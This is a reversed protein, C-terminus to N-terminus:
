PRTPRSALKQRHFSAEKEGKPGLSEYFRLLQEHAPGYNEDLRLATKLWYVGRDKIGLRLCVEGLETCLAPNSPLADKAENTLAVLRKQDKEIRDFQDQYKGASVEDGQRQYCLALHYCASSEAPNAALASKLLSIAEDWHEEGEAIRGRVYTVDPHDWQDRPLQELCARAEQWKGDDVLCSALGVRATFSSPDQQLVLEYEKAAEATRYYQKLTQALLVRATLREPDLELARRLDAIAASGNMRLVYYNGRLAIAEVNDPELQLWRNLCQWALDFRYIFLYAHSLSELVLATLPGEEFLYSALYRYVAEVEGKQARVLYEELQLQESVGKQLARATQLHEQALSLNNMRRATRGALLHLEASRPRFRLAKELEGFAKTYRQRTLAEQAQRLHYEAGLYMGIQWLGLSTLGLLCLVSLTKVIARATLLKHM